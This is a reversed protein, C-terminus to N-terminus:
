SKSMFESIKLALEADTLTYMNRVDRMRFFSGFINQNVSRFFGEVCVPVVKFMLGARFKFSKKRNLDLLDYYFMQYKSYKNSTSIMTSHFQKNLSLSNFIGPRTENLIIKIYNDDLFERVRPRPGFWTMDGIMVSFVQFIEDLGCPRILRGVKTIQQSKSKFTKIKCIKISREKYGVRKQFFLPSERLEIWAIGAIVAGVPIVLPLFILAALSGIINLTKEYYTKLKKRDKGTHFNYLHM